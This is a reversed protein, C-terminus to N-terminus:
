RGAAATAGASPRSGSLGRRETLIALALVALLGQYTTGLVYGAVFLLLLAYGTAAMGERRLCSAVTAAYLGFSALYLPFPLRLTIGETWLALIATTSGNALYAGLLGVVLAAVMISVFRSSAGGRGWAWFIAFGAAVLLAEGIALALTTEPPTTRLGLLGYLAHALAYYQSFLYAAAVLAVTLRREVAEGRRLCYPLAVAVLAFTVGTAFAAEAAVAKGLLALAVNGWALGLLAWAALANGRRQLLLWAALAAAMVALVSALNFAFSGVETLFGYAYLFPGEKPIHVGVRSLVRLLLLEALGAAALSALTYHLLVRASPQPLAYQRLGGHGDLAQAM